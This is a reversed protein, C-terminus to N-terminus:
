LVLCLRFEKQSDNFMTESRWYNLFNVFAASKKKIYNLDLRYYSEKVKENSLNLDDEESNSRVPYFHEVM